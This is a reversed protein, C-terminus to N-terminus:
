LCVLANACMAGVAISNNGDWIVSGTDKAIHLLTFCAGIRDGSVFGQTEARAAGDTLASLVQTFAGGWWDSHCMDDILM